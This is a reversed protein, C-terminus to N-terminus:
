NVANISSEGFFRLMRSVRTNHAARLETLSLEILQMPVGHLRQIFEHTALNAEPSIKELRQLEGLKSILDDDIRM